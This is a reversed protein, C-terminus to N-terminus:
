ELIQSPWSHVIAHSDYYSYYSYAIVTVTILTETQQQRSKHFRITRTRSTWLHKKKPLSKSHCMFSRASFCTRVISEQFSYGNQCKRKITISILQFGKALPYPISSGPPNIWFWYYQISILLKCGFPEIWLNTKQKFKLQTACVCMCKRGNEFKTPQSTWTAHHCDLITSDKISYISPM